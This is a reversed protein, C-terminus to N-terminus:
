QEPPRVTPLLPLTRRSRKNVIVLLDPVTAIQVSAPFRYQEVRVDSVSNLGESTGPM